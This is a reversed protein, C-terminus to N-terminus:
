RQREAFLKNDIYVEIKRWDQDEVLIKRLEEWRDSFLEGGFSYFTNLRKKRRENVASKKLQSEEILLRQKRAQLEELREQASRRKRPQPEQNQYDQM